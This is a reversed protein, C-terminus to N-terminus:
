ATQIIIVGTDLESPNKVQARLGIRKCLGETSLPVGKNAPCTRMRFFIIWFTQKKLNSPCFKGVSTFLFQSSSPRWPCLRIEAKLILHREWTRNSVPPLSELVPGKWWEKWLKKKIVNNQSLFCCAETENNKCNNSSLWLAFILWILSLTCWQFTLRWVLLEPEISRKPVPKQIQFSRERDSFFQCQGM